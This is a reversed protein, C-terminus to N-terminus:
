DAGFGPAGFDVITQGATGWATNLTGNAQYCRVAMHTSGGDEVDGLVYLLETDPDEVIAKPLFDTGTRVLGQEPGFSPDLLPSQIQCLGLLPALTTLLLTIRRTM